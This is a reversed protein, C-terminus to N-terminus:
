KFRIALAESDIINDLVHRDKKIVYRYFTVRTSEKVVSAPNHVTNSIIFEVSVNDYSCIMTGGNWFEIHEVYEPIHKGSVESVDSFNGCATFALCCAMLIAFLTKKM